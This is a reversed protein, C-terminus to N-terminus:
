YDFVGMGDVMRCVHVAYRDGYELHWAPYEWGAGKQGRIWCWLGFRRRMEGWGVFDIAGSVPDVRTAKGAQSYLIM